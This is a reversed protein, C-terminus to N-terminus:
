EGLLKNIINEKKKIIKVAREIRERELTKIYKPIEIELISITNDFKIVEQIKGNNIDRYIKSKSINLKEALEKVTYFAKFKM